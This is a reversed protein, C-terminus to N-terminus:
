VSLARAEQFFLGVLEDSIPDNEWRWILDDVSNSMHIRSLIDEKRYLGM